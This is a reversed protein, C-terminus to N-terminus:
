VVDMNFFTAKLYSKKDYQELGMWHSLILNSNHQIKFEKM